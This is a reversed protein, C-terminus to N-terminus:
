VASFRDFIWTESFELSLLRCKVHLGIYACNKNYRAWNKMCFNYIKINQQGHM